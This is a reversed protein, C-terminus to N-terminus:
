LDRIIACLRGQPLVSDDLRGHFIQLKGAAAIWRSNKGIKMAEVFCRRGAMAVSGGVEVPLACVRPPRGGRTVIRQHRCETEGVTERVM